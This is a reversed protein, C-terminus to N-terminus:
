RKELLKKGYLSKTIGYVGKNTTIREKTKLIKPNLVSTKFIKVQTISKIFSKIIKKIKFCIELFSKSLKNM